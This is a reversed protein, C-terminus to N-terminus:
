QKEEILRDILRNMRTAAQGDLHAWRESAQAQLAALQAYRAQNEIVDRLVRPFEAKDEVTVVGPASDYDHYRYRHMDYNIVPKGCAIAWRITASVSAVFVDCLPVLAATDRDVIMAGRERLLAADEPPTRPHLRYIVNARVSEFTEVLFELLARQDAFERGPRVCSYQDPPLACLVLPRDDAAGADELVVRRNELAEDRNRALVDDYLAGTRVLRDKPLGERLYRHEMEDSEVAIADAFGSLYTWPDPPALRLAEMALIPGAPMRLLKRERHEHVWRPFMRAVLRNGAGSVAHYPVDFFAEAPESRTAVTYPVILSAIRREHGAVVWTTTAYGPNEEAFILLAPRHRDLIRRAKRLQSHHGFLWLPFAFASVYLDVPLRDLLGRRPPASPTSPSAPAAPQATIPDGDGDLCDIQERHCTAIDRQRTQYDYTFLIVPKYKGAQQLARAVRVLETFHADIVVVLLITKM